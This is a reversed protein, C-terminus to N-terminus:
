GSIILGRLYAAQGVHQLDDSIVSMLRVGLTVPPDWSEDVVRDLDQDTLGPLYRLTRQYVADHYATLLEGSSVQVAAVEASGHGYGTASPLFPLGFRDAWGDATWVQETGAVHAVHDDQIRTLHWVLWGISNAAGDPRYALQDPALSDACEHVEYRVRGFGDALLDATKM